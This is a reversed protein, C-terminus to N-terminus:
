SDLLSLLKKIDDRIYDYLDSELTSRFVSEHDKIIGRIIRRNSDSFYKSDNFTTKNLETGNTVDFNSHKKSLAYIISYFGGIYEIFEISHASKIDEILKNSLTDIYREGEKFHHLNRTFRNSKEEIGLEYPELKYISRDNNKNISLLIYDIGNEKDVLLPYFYKSLEYHAIPVKETMYGERKEVTFYELQNYARSRGSNTLFDIKIYQKGLEDKNVIYDFPIGRDEMQKKVFNVDVKLPTISHM